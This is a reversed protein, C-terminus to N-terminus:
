TACEERRQALRAPEDPLTPFRELDELLLRALQEVLQARLPAPLPAPNM